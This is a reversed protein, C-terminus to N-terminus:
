HQSVRRTQWTGWCPTSTPLRVSQREHEAQSSPCGPTPLNCAAPDQRRAPTCWAPAFRRGHEPWLEEPVQPGHQSKTRNMMRGDLHLQAAV